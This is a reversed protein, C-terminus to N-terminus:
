IRLIGKNSRKEEERALAKIRIKEKTEESCPGNHRGKLCASHHIRQEQTPIRGKNALSIKRKTEESCPNRKQLARAKKIKEKTKESCKWGKRSDSLRQKTEKSRKRGLHTERAKNRVADSVVSKESKLREYMRGTIRKNQINSLLWFAQAMSAGYTKWLILHVIYHERPTLRIINATERYGKKGGLAVPLIHHRIMNKEEEYLNSRKLRSSIFNLYRSLHPENGQPLEYINNM